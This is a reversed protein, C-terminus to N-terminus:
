IPDPQAMLFLVEHSTSNKTYLFGSAVLVGSSLIFFLASLTVAIGDDIDAAGHAIPVFFL